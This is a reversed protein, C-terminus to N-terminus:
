ATGDKTWNGRGAFLYVWDGDHAFLGSVKRLVDECFMWEYLVNVVVGGRRITKRELGREEAERNAEDALKRLEERKDEERKRKRESSRNNEAVVKRYEFFVATIFDNALASLGDKNRREKNGLFDAILVGPMSKEKLLRELENRFSSYKKQTLM